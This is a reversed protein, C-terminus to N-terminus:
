SATARSRLAAPRMTPDRERDAVAPDHQQAPRDQPQQQTKDLIPAHAGVTGTPKSPARHLHDQELPDLLEALHTIDDRDLIAKPAVIQARCRQARGLGVESSNSRRRTWSSAWFRLALLLRSRQRCISPRRDHDDALRAFAALEVARDVGAVDRGNVSAPTVKLRCCTRGRARELREADVMNSASCGSTRIVTSTLMAREGSSASICAL